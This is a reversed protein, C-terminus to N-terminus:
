EPMELTVSRNFFVSVKSGANVSWARVQGQLNTPQLTQQLRPSIANMAGQVVAAPYNPKPQSTTVITQREGIITQQQRPQNFLRAAEQAGGVMMSGVAKFFNSGREPNIRSAILPNGNSGRIEVVDEPLEYESGDPLVLLTGALFTVGNNAVLAVRGLLLTKSPITVAGAHIPEELEITFHRGGAKEDGDVFIIPSKVRGSVQTGAMIRATAVTPAPTAAVPEYIKGALFAQQEAIVREDLANNALDVKATPAGQSPPSSAVPQDQSADNQGEAPVSRQVEPSIGQYVSPQSELQNQLVHNSRKPFSGVEQQLRWLEQAKQWQVVPDPPPSLAVTPTAPPTVVPPPAPPPPMVVANESRGQRSSLSLDEKASQEDGDAKVQGDAPVQVALQQQRRLENERIQYQQQLVAQKARLEYLEKDRDEESTGVFGRSAASEQGVEARKDSQGTGIGFSSSLFVGGLLVVVGVAGAMVGAQVLGQEHVKLKTHQGEPEDEGVDDEVAEGVADGEIDGRSLGLSSLLDEDFPDEGGKLAHKDPRSPRSQIQNVM